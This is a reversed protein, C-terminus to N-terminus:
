WQVVNTKFLMIFMAIIIIAIITFWWGEGYHGSQFKESFTECWKNNLYCQFCIYSDRKNYYTWKETPPQIKRCCNCEWEKNNWGTKM